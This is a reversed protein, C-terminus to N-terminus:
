SWIVFFFSTEARIETQLKVFQYCIFKGQQQDVSSTCNFLPFTVWMPDGGECRFPRVALVTAIGPREALCSVDLVGGVRRFSL